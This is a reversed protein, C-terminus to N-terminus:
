GSWVCSSPCTTGIAFNGTIGTVGVITACSYAGGRGLPLPVASCIITQNKIDPTLVFEYTESYDSTEYLNCGDVAILNPNPLLVKWLGYSPYSYGMGLAPDVLTPSLHVSLNLAVRYSEGAIMAPTTDICLKKWSIALGDTGGQAPLPSTRLMLNVRKLQTTLVNGVTGYGTASEGAANRAYARFFTTTNDVLGNLLSNFNFPVTVDSNVSVKFVQTPNAAQQTLTLMAGLSYAPNQTYLVGYEQIANPNGKANIVSDLVRFGDYTINDAGGTTVTPALPALATTHTTLTAGVYTTGDVIMYAYYNYSTDPELGTIDILPTYNATLPGAVPTVPFYLWTSDSSKKYRMAYYEVDAWGVIDYGGTTFGNTTIGIASLTKISPVVVVEATTFSIEEGYNTGVTNIAYARVYYTTNPTLSTMYSTFTGLGGGDVTHPGATTPNGTTNWAVGRYTVAAGGTATVNGGGTATTQAFASIPLTIVTPLQASPLAAEQAILFTAGDDGFYPLIPNGRKDFVTSGDEFLNV